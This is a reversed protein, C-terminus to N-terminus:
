GLHLAARAHKVAREVSEDCPWYVPSDGDRILRDALIVGRPRVSPDGEVEDALGLILSRAETVETERLPIQARFRNREAREVDEVLKRLHDAVASRYTRDLLRTCRARTEPSGEPLEGALLRDDISHARVRAVIRELM